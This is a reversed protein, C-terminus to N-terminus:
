KIIVKKGNVIYLGKTPQAVRQGSLSYVFKDNTMEGRENLMASIGTEENAFVVNLSRATSSAGSAIKLFAKGAAVSGGTVPVFQANDGVKSLMYLTYGDYADYATAETASGLLHGKDTDSSAIVPIDYTGKAAKLVVGTGAPVNNVKTLTVTSESCTATYAELGTVDSFDLAYPTYLTAWGASTVTASMTADGTKALAIYDLACTTNGSKAIIKDGALLLVNEITRTGTSLVYNISYSVNVTEILNTEDSADNKYLSFDFASNTNTSFVAYNISYVGNEAVTLMTKTGDASLGRYAIGGSLNANEVGTNGWNSSTTEIFQTVQSEAVSVEKTTADKTVNFQFPATAQYYIGDKEIYKSWSVVKTEDDFLSGSDITAGNSTTVSYDYKGYSTFTVTVVTSGDAAITKGSADDTDYVYKLTGAANYRNAKDASILTPTTGVVGSYVVDEDIKNSESDVYRVTYDARTAVASTISLNNIALTRDANNSSAYAQISAIDLDWDAPLQGTYTNDISKASM